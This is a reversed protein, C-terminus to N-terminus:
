KVGVISMLLHLKGAVDALDSPGKFASPPEVGTFVYLAKVEEMSNVQPAIKYGLIKRLADIQEWIKKEESYAEKSSVAAAGTKSKRNRKGSKSGAPGRGAAPGTSGQSSADSANDSTIEETKAKKDDVNSHDGTIGGNESKEPMPKKEEEEIRVVSNEKELPENEQANGIGGESKREEVEEVAVNEEKKSEDKSEREAAPKEVEEIERTEEVNAENAENEEGISGKEKDVYGVEGEEGGMSEESEEDEEESSPSSFLKSMIKNTCAYTAFYVGFPVAFAFGLTSFVVLPPLVIPASSIVVGTIMIKKGVGWGKNLILRMKGGDGGGGGEGEEEEVIEWEGRDEEM